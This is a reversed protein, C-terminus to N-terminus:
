SAKQLPPAFHTIATDVIHTIEQWEPGGEVVFHPGVGKELNLHTAVAPSIDLDAKLLGSVLTHLGAEHSGYRIGPGGQDKGYSEIRLPPDSEVIPM